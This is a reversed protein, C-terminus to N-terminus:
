FNRMSYQSLTVIVRRSLYNGSQIIRANYVTSSLAVMAAHAICLFCKCGFYYLEASVIFAAFHFGTGRMREPDTLMEFDSVLLFQAASITWALLLGDVVHAVWRLGLTAPTPSAAM